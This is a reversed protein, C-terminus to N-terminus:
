AIRDVIQAGLEELKKSRDRLGEISKEGFGTLNQSLLGRIRDYENQYNLRNQDELVKKRFTTLASKTQHAELLKKMRGYHALHKDYIGLVPVQTYDVRYKSM